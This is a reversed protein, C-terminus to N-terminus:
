NGKRQAEIAQLRKEQDLVHATLTALVDRLEQDRQSFVEALDDRWANAAKVADEIWAEQVKRIHEIRNSLLESLAAIEKDLLRTLIEEIKGTFEADPDSDKWGTEELHEALWDKGDEEDPRESAM